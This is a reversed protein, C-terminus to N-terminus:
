TGSSATPLEHERRCERVWRGGRSIRRGRPQQLWAGAVALVLVLEATMLLLTTAFNGIAEERREEEWREGTLLLDTATMAEEADPGGIMTM